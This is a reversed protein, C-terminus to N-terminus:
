KDTFDSIAESTKDVAIVPAQAPVVKLSGESQKILAELITDKYVKKKKLLKETQAVTLMTTKTKTLEGKTCGEARLTTMAVEEDEWVRKGKSRVLKFDPVENGLNLQKLTEEEVGKIFQKLAPVIKMRESLEMNEFQTKAAEYALENLKPCTVKHPCWRCADESPAYVGIGNNVDEITESVLADLDFLVQLPVELERMNDVAPQAVHIFVKTVTYGEAILKNLAGLAYLQLQTNDNVYVYVGSGAKLDVIHLEGKGKHFYKYDATGFCEEHIFVKEEVEVISNDRFENFQSIYEIYPEVVTEMDEQLVHYGDYVTQVENGLLIDECLAHLATGRAAYKSQAEKKKAPLLMSMSCTLWRKSNSPSFRAHGNSM